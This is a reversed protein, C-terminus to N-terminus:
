LERNDEEDRKLIDLPQMETDQGFELIDAIIREREFMIPNDYCDHDICLLLGQQKVLLSIPHDLGCRDCRAWPIGNIGSGGQRPM